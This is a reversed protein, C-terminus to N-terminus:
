IKTQTINIEHKVMEDLISDIDYKHKWDLKKMAYSPDGHLSEVESPRYYRTDIKIVTKDGVKAVENEGVGSWVLDVGLIKFV